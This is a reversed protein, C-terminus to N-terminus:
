RTVRQSRVLRAVADAVHTRFQPGGAGRKARWGCSCSTANFFEDKHDAIEAEIADALWDRQVAARTM